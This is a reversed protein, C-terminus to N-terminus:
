KAKIASVRGCALFWLINCNFFFFEHKPMKSIQLNHWLPWLFIVQVVVGPTQKSLQHWCGCGSIEHSNWAQADKLNGVWSQAIPTSTGLCPIMIETSPTVITVISIPPIGGLSELHSDDRRDGDFWRVERGVRSYNPHYLCKLHLNTTAYRTTLRLMLCVQYCM